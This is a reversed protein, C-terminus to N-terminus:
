TSPQQNKKVSVVNCLFEKLRRQVLPNMLLSPFQAVDLMNLQVPMPPAALAPEFVLDWSTHRAQAGLGETEACDQCFHRTQTEGGAIQTLHVTASTNNCVSCQM